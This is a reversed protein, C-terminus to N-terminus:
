PPGIHAAGRPLTNADDPQLYKQRGVRDPGHVSVRCQTKARAVGQLIGLNFTASRIGGGSFALGILDRDLPRQPESGDLGGLAEDLAKVETERHPTKVQRKRRSDHIEHLELPFVEAFTLSQDEGSPKSRFKSRFKAFLDV